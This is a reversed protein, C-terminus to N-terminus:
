IPGVGTQQQYQTYLKDGPQLMAVVGEEVLGELDYLYFHEMPYGGHKPVLTTKTNGCLNYREQSIQYPISEGTTDDRLLFILDEWDSRKYIKM